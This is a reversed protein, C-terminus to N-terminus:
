IEEFEVELGGFRDAIFNYFYAMVAGLVFGVVAYFVIGILGGIVGFILGGAITALEGSLAAALIAIPAYILIFLLGMVSYMAASIKGASVPDIKSLELDKM